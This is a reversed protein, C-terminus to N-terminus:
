NEEFLGFVQTSIIDPDAHSVWRGAWHQQALKRYAAATRQQLQSDREYRDPTREADRLGRSRARSAATDPDTDLLIQLDPVPLGFREFELQYIWEVMAEDGTRALSYAANSAVYRDAILLHDQGSADDALLAAADRRDLAFLLAMAYASDTIDGLQGYLGDRALQAFISDQYRPFSLSHTVIGRQAAEATIAQVLTNKGAGDIGEIAIFM